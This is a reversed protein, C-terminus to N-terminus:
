HAGRSAPAAGGDLIGCERYERLRYQVKRTSIGLMAAARSTSGGVAELTRLIAVREIEALTSGPILAAAPVAAGNAKAGIGIALHEPGIWRESATVVAREIANELERVNGPWAHALLMELAAPTFGDVPRGHLEALHALLSRAILPIDARRERLPPMHLHVINLRYFLDERFRGAAVEQRLDRHTAAALRVDVRLTESGGVREFARDQLFRLLKVQTALPIESIEDLFLTGGDAREIRGERRAVAGPFADREHGFLESELVPEVLAACHLRVFPAGARPGHEHLAIAALEKGTGTEGSLLVPVSTAAVQEIVRRVREIAPDAGLLAGLGSGVALSRGNRGVIREKRM